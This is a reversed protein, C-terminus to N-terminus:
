PAAARCDGSRGSRLRFGIPLLVPHTAQWPWVSEGVCACWRCPEAQAAGIAVAPFRVHMGGAPACFPEAANRAPSSAPADAASANRLHPRLEAFGTRGYVSHSFSLLSYMWNTLGPSRRTASCVQPDAPQWACRLAPPECWCSSWPACATAPPARCCRRSVRVLVRMEAFAIRGVAQRLADVGVRRRRLVQRSGLAHQGCRSGSARQSTECGPLMRRTNSRPPPARASIPLGFGSSSGPRGSSLNLSRPRPVSSRVSGHKKAQLFRAQEIRNKRM